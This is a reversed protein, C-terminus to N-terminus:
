KKAYLRCWGNPAIPSQVVECDSPPRFHLCNDCRERGNPRAQYGAHEHKAKQSVQASATTASLSTLTGACLAGAGMALLTRRSLPGTKKSIDDTM